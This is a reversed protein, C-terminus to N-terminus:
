FVAGGCVFLREQNKVCWNVIKKCSRMLIHKDIIGDNTIFYLEYSKTIIVFGLITKNNTLKFKLYSIFNSGANKTNYHNLVLIQLKKYMYMLKAHSDSDPGPEHNSTEPFVYQIHNKSKYAFHRILPTPLDVNILIKSKDTYLCRTLENFLTHQHMLDGIMSNAVDRMEFFASKDASILIIALKNDDIEQQSLNLKDIFQRSEGEAYKTLDIFKIFSYLFGNLNFKPLCTPVWFEEESYSDDATTKFTNTNFVMEFLLQLDSTHLSHRKPRLVTILRGKPAVILGYLLNPSRNEIMLGELSRRISSKMKIAQLGGIILGPNLSNSLDNCISDLCAIDSRGLLKRLDYNERKAFVRNIHPKSLTLLLFNYLFQLQQLLQLDTEDRSSVAMLIIPSQNYFTFRTKNKTVFSRLNDNNNEKFFSMITQIIGMYGAIVEDSGHMSYIPKGASSLIFFHKKFRLFKDMETSSDATEVSIPVNLEDLFHNEFSHMSDRLISRDDRILEDITTGMQDDLEDFVTLKPVSSVMSVPSGVTSGSNETGPSGELTTDLGAPEGILFSDIESHSRTDTDIDRAIAGNLDTEYEGQEASEGLTVGSFYNDVIPSGAM